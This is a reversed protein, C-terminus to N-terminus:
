ADTTSSGNTGMKQAVYAGVIYSPLWLFAVFPISSLVLFLAPGPCMGAMAWGIGFIAAGGFLKADMNRSSPISFSAGNKLALPCSLQSARDKRGLFLLNPYGIAAYSLASIIVGGGMVFALTPDWTGRAFGTLDLFGYIKSPAVMHSLALGFSMMCGSIGAPVLKRKENISDSLETSQQEVLVSDENVPMALDQQSKKELGTVTVAALIFVLTIAYGLIRVPYPVTDRRLWTTYSAFISVPSIIYVTIAATLMFTMVAAFSRPSLRALGCIGHGSTCGNCLKTGCGVLFGALIHAIPSAIPIYEQEEPDPVKIYPYFMMVQTTVAFSGLYVLKWNATKQQRFISSTLIGSFGMIDGNFILLVSAALGILFGGILGSVPDSLAAM